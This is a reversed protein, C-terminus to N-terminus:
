GWPLSKFKDRLAKPADKMFKVMEEDPMKDIATALQDESMGMYSEFGTITGAINGSGVSPVADKTVKDLQGKAAKEKTAKQDRKMYWYGKNIDGFGNKTTASYDLVQQIVDGIAKQEEPTCENIDKGYIEIARVAAFSNIETESETRRRENDQKELEQREQVQLKGLYDNQLAIAYAPDEQYVENLTKGDHPGGIVAMQGLKEIPVKPLVDAKPTPQYDTPKEEPYVEYYKEPGIKKLLTNKRELENKEWTLKDIRKQTPDKKTEDEETSPVPEQADQETESEKPKDDPPVMPAQIPEKSPKEGETKPEPEMPEEKKEGENGSLLAQEEATLDDKTYDGIAMISGKRHM